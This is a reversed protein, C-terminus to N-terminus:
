QSDNFREINAGLSNLTNELQYYGRDLHYVRSLITEGKAAIAALVLSASARLDSAMVPAGILSKQGSVVATSNEKIIQAGMRNLEPVHMFRQPYIKETVVSNGNAFCLLAMLQAQLDTPFGPFPQTTIVTSQLKKEKSIKVTTNNENKKDLLTLNIGIREFVSELALLDNKPYRHLVIEGNSIASSIALTGAVIRDPPVTFNTGSLTDTGQIKIRPTGAGKINAGMSNLLDALAVIEPECAASEIVTTGKALTAASLINATGLVTSGFPGGLFITNGKLTKASAVIDGNKFEITAGLAELGKIHLDVPRHGFNCGGPMSVRAHGRKALLPGLVCISARMTKVIDYPAHSNSENNVKIQLSNLDNKYDQKICCGLLELLKSLNQIDSLNPIQNLTILDNTLLSAAMLPLSANKSGSVTAEGFLSSPGKIKFADM